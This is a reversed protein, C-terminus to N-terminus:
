MMERRYYWNLKSVFPTAGCSSEVHCWGMFRWKKIFLKGNRCIHFSGKENEILLMRRCFLAPFQFNTLLNRHSVPNQDLYITIKKTTMSGLLLAFFLIEKLGHVTFFIVIIVSIFYCSDVHIETSLVISPRLTSSFFTIFIWMSYKRNFSLCSATELIANIIAIIMEHITIVRLTRTDWLRAFMQTFCKLWCWWCCPRMENKNRNNATIMM